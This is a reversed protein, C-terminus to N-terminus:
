PDVGFTYVREGMGFYGERGQPVFGYEAPELPESTSIKFYGAPTRETLFPVLDEKSIKQKHSWPGGRGLSTNRENEQKDLSFKVLPADNPNMCSYFVPQSGTRLAAHLPNLELLTVRGVGFFIRNITGRESILEIRQGTAPDELWMAPSAGSVWGPLGGSADQCPAPGSSTSAVGPAATSTVAPELEPNIMFRVIGEPVGAQKLAILGDVTTNFSRAETRIKEIIVGEPLGAEVMAVVDANELPDQALLPAAAVLVMATLFPALLIRRVHFQSCTVENVKGSKM